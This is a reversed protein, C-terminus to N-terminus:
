TPRRGKEPVFTRLNSPLHFQPGAELETPQHVLEALDDYFGIENGIVTRADRTWDPHFIPDVSWSVNRTHRIYVYLDPRQLGNLKFGHATFAKAFADDEGRQIDQFGGVHQWLRKRYIFCAGYGCGSADWLNTRWGRKLLFDYHYFQCMGGLDVPTERFWRVLTELYDHGYFDDDDWHCIIEGRCQKAAFNRRTGISTGESIRFYRVSVAARGSSPERQIEWTTARPRFPRTGGDVVVVEIPEDDFTQWAAQELARRLLVHRNGSPIILSIV